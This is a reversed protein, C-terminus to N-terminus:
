EPKLNNFFENMYDTKVDAEISCAPCIKAPVYQGNKRIMVDEMEEVFTNCQCNDCKRICTTCGTCNDETQIQDDNKDGCHPCYVYDAETMDYPAKMKNHNLTQNTYCIYCVAIIYALM